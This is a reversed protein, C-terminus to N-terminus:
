LVEPAEDATARVPRRPHDVPVRPECNVYSFLEEAREDGGRM